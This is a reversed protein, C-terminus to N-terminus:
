FAVAGLASVAQGSCADPDCDAAVEDPVQGTPPDVCDRTWRLNLPSGLITQAASTELMAVSPILMGIGSKSLGGRYRISCRHFSVSFAIEFEMGISSADNPM